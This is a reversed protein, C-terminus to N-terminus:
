SSGGGSGNLNEEPNKELNSLKGNSNFTEFKSATFIRNRRQKRFGQQKRLESGSDLFHVQQGVFVKISSDNLCVSGGARISAGVRNGLAHNKKNQRYFCQVGGDGVSRTKVRM